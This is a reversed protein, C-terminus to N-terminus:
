KFYYLQKRWVYSVIIYGSSVSIQAYYQTNHGRNGHVTRLMHVGMWIVGVNM